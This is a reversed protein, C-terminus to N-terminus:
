GEPYKLIAETLPLFARWGGDDISGIIRIAGKPTSDWLVLIEIQYQAGGPGQKESHFEEDILSALEAYLKKEYVVLEDQIIQRAEETNM